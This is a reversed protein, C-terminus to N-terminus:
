ERMCEFVCVCVHRWVVVCDNMMIEKILHGIRYLTWLARHTYVVVQCLASPLGADCPWAWADVMVPSGDTGVSVDEM